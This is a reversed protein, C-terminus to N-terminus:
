FTTVARKMLPQNFANELNWKLIGKTNWKGKVNFFWISITFHLYSQFFKQIAITQMFDNQMCEM